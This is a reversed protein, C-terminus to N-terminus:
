VIRFTVLETRNKVFFLYGSAIFFTNIGIGKLNTGIEEVYLCEGLSSFIALRNVFAALNGSYFSIIIYGAYELYEAGLMPSPETNIKLFNKVTEFDTEGDLYQFPQLTDNTHLWENQQLDSETVSGDEASLCLFSTKDPNETNEFIKLVVRDRTVGALNAWWKEKIAVDRWLFGQNEFDFASFSVVRRADDRQEIVIVPAGPFPLINWVPASLIVSVPKFHLEPL